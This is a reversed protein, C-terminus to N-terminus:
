KRGNKPHQVGVHPVPVLQGNHSPWYPGYWMLGFNMRASGRLESGVVLEETHKRNGSTIVVYM